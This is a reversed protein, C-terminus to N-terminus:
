RFYAPLLLSNISEAPKIKRLKRAASAAPKPAASPHAPKATSSSSATATRLSRSATAKASPAKSCNGALPNQLAQQITRKLPRAGYVPDYGADALWALAPADLDMTIRREALMAKLRELQITVIGSMESRSLRKFLLIEDLRNLFEPRFAKRVVEM